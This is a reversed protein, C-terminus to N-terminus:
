LHGFYSLLLANNAFIDTCIRGPHLCIKKALYDAQELTDGVAVGFYVVLGAPIESILKGDVSLRTQKVRQVVARM